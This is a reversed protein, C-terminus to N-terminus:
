QDLVFCVNNFQKIRVSRLQHIELLCYPPSRRPSPTSALSPSGDGLLDVGDSLLNGCNCLLNIGIMGDGPLDVSSLM